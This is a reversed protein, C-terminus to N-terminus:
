VASALSGSTEDAHGFLAGVLRDVSPGVQRRNGYGAYVYRDPRILLAQVGNKRAWDTFLNNKERIVEVGDDTPLTETDSPMIALRHGGIRKWESHDDLWHQAETGLTVYVFRMPLVDDSLKEVGSDDVITPQVFLHGALATELDILGDALNPIFGQRTTIMTGSALQSQLLKDRNQAKTEDLEGIILGFEKAHDIVTSVHPKREQQYTDLLDLEMGQHKIGAIKWALNFADRIGACLGQGLFPPMQHMSDGAMIVRGRRWDKGVLAHFRYVASRWISMADLDVFDALVKNLVEPDNFTTPDEHPLIKIEWRRLDRPGVVYTAPRKPQCYQTTKKPLPTERLQLADVVVWWEDFEKDELGIGLQTRVPSWSGDCGILFDATITEEVSTEVDKITVTVYDGKDEFGTFLTGLSIEVNSRTELRNRLFEELRPQVFTLTAPWALAYPPPAPDFLKILQGEVGIFDTGPHPKTEPSLDHAVGAFQLARMAEWDLVIARPKDYIALDKDIIRVSLGQSALLNALTAGVPGCGSIIADYHPM